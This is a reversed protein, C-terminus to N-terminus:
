LKRTTDGLAHLIIKELERLAMDPMYRLSRQYGTEGMKRALKPNLLLELIICNSGALLNAWQKSTRIKKLQAMALILNLM